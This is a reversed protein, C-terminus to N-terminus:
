ESTKWFKLKVNSPVVTTDNILKNSLDPTYYPTQGNTFYWIAEQTAERFVDNSYGDGYGKANNPYGVYLVRKIDEWHNTKDLWESNEYLGGSNAEYDSANEAVLQYTANNPRDAKKQEACYAIEGNMTFFPVYDPNLGGVFSGQGSTAAKVETYGGWTTMSTFVMFLALIFTTIRKLKKSYNNIM